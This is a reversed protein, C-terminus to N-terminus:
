PQKIAKAAKDITAADVLLSITVSSKDTGVKIKDILEGVFPPIKEQGQILIKALPISQKVTMSVARATEADATNILIKLEADNTLTVGITVSQLKEALQAMQPNAKMQAKIDDNLVVATVFSEKGTTKGLAAQLDKFNKGAKVKQGIVDLLYEKKNSGFATSKDKFTFYFPEDGPNKGKGEYITRQGEQIIKLDGNKAAEKAVASIKELDFNGKAAVFANPKGNPDIKDATVLVTDIDKFPDLGLATLVKQAEQNGQIAAKIQDLAYKKTVPSALAARVNVVVALESDQPVLTDAPTDARCSAAVAVALGLAALLKCRSLM